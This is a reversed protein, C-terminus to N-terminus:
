VAAHGHGRGFAANLDDEVRAREVAQEVTLGDVIGDGGYTPFEIGQEGVREGVREGVAVSGRDDITDAIVREVLQVVTIGRRSAAAQARRALEDDIEIVTAM